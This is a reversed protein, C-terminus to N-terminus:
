AFFEALPGRFGPLEPLGEIVDNEGLLTPMPDGPRYIAVTKREPHVVWVMAVGVNLYEHVKGLIESRRNSPSYVEVALDPPIEPWGKTQDKPLRAASYFCIDAGRVTDPNRGTIVGADNSLVRGAGTRRAYEALLYVIQACVVAHLFNGPSVAVIEGEVLEFSGPGLVAGLFEEATLRTRTTTAM